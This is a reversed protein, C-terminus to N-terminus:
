RSALLAKAQSEGALKIQQTFKLNIAGLLLTQGLLALLITSIAFTASGSTIAILPMAPSFVTFLWFVGRNLEPEISLIALVLPPLAMAISVGGMAWWIRHQTKMLLFSQAIASYLLITCAGLGLSLFFQIKEELSVSSLIVLFAPPTIAIAINVAIALLAPSKEGTLLDKVLSTRRFHRYRAWDYLAQRHPTIAAILYMFFGLSLVMLLCFRLLLSDLANSMGDPFNHRVAFGSITVIFCTTLLYSQTKSLLTANPDRFCRQLSLWFGRTFVAFNLIGFLTFTVYKEGLPLYYWQMQALYDRTYSYSRVLTSDHLHPIYSFPSLMAVWAFPNDFPMGGVMWITCYLFGVVAGAGLWPQFGGLWSTALGIVLSLSFFFLGSAFIAGYFLVLSIFPIGGLMGLWLHLPIAFAAGLYVLSPVGLLKGILLKFNSQPTLRIFNLTGRREERDLDSIILFTGLGILAFVLVWSLLVFVDLSWLQWNLVFEGSAKRFCYYTPNSTYEYVVKGTCYSSTYTNNPGLYVPLKQYFSFLVLLQSVFSVVVAIAINRPKVRGKLERFVQPNWEGLRDMLNLRM